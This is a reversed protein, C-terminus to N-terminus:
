SRKRRLDRILFPLTVVFVALGGVLLTGPVLRIAKFLLGGRDQKDALSLAPALIALVIAVSSVSVELKVVRALWSVVAGFLLAVGM